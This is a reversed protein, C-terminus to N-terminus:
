KIKIILNHEQVFLKLSDIRILSDFVYLMFLAIQDIESHIIWILRNTKAFWVCALHILTSYKHALQEDSLTYIFIGM